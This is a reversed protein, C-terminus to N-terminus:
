SDSNRHEHLTGKENEEIEMPWEGRMYSRISDLVRQTHNSQTTFDAKQTLLLFRQLLTLYKAALDLSEKPTLEKGSVNRLLAEIQAELREIWYIFRQETLDKTHYPM